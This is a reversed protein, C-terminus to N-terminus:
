RELQNNELWAKDLVAVATRRVINNIPSTITMFLDKEINEICSHFWREDVEAKFKFQARNFEINLKQLM